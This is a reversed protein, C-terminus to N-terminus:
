IRTKTQIVTLNFNQSVLEIPILKDRHNRRINSFLKTVEFVFLSACSIISIYFHKWRIIKFETKIKVIKRTGLLIYPLHVAHLRACKRHAFEHVLGFVLTFRYIMSYNRCQISVSFRWLIDWPHYKATQHYSTKKFSKMIKIEMNGKAWDYESDFKILIM